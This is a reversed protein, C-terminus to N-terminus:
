SITIGIANYYPKGTKSDWLVTTERQNTIGFCVVNSASRGSMELQKVAEDICRIALNIIELPDEEVCEPRPHLMPIPLQHIAVLQKTKSSFIQSYRHARM